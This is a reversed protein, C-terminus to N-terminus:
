GFIRTWWSKNSNRLVQNAILLDQRDQKLIKIINKHSGSIENLRINESALKNLKTKLNIIEDQQKKTVKETNWLKYKLMKNETLLENTVDAHPTKYKKVINILAERASKISTIKRTSIFHVGLSEQLVTIEHKLMDKTSQAM